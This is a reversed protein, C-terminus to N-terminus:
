EVLIGLVESAKVVFYKVQADNGYSGPLQIETGAYKPIIVCDGVKVYMPMLNGQDNLKGNGAALVVGFNPKEQATDPIVIGGSTKRELSVKVLVNDGLPKFPVAVSM